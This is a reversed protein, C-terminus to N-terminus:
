AKVGIALYQGSYFGTTSVVGFSTTTKPNLVEEGDPFVESFNSTKFNKSVFTSYNTSAFEKVLQIDKAGNYPNGADGQGYIGFQIYIDGVELCFQQSPGNSNIATHLIINNISIEEGNLLFGLADLMGSSDRVAATDPTPAKVADFGDVKDADMGSGSGQNLPDSTWIKAGDTFLRDGQSNDSRYEITFPTQQADTVPDLQRVSWRGNDVVQLFKSIFTGPNGGDEESFKIGPAIRLLEPIFGLPALAALNGISIGSGAPQISDTEIGASATLLEQLDLANGQVIDLVEQVKNLDSLKFIKKAINGNALTIDAAVPTYGNDEIYFRAGEDDGKSNQGYTEVYQGDELVALALQAETNFRKM